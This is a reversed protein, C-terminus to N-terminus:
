EHNPENMYLYNYKPLHVIQSVLTHKTTEPAFVIRSHAASPHSAGLIIDEIELMHPLPGFGFYYFCKYCNHLCFHIYTPKVFQYRYFFM